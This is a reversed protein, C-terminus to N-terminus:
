AAARLSGVQAQDPAALRRSDPRLWWSVAGLSLLVLPPLASAVPDGSAIHSIFAGTLVFTYGAYAWEKLRPLGPALLAAVGLLKWTGLITPLYAPFGLHDMMEIIPPAGSLNFLGSGTLALAFLGTSAWYGITKANM